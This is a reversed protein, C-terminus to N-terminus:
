RGRRHGVVLRGTHRAVKTHRRQANVPYLANSQAILGKQFFEIIRLTFATSIDITAYALTGNLNAWSMTVRLVSSLLCSHGFRRRVTHEGFFSAFCLDKQFYFNTPRLRATIVKRRLLSFKARARAERLHSSLPSRYFARDTSQTPKASPLSSKFYKVRLAPNSYKHM